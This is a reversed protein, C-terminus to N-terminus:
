HISQGPKGLYHNIIAVSDALDIDGDKNVDAAAVKYDTTILQGPKGLYHNITSVSDALDIEGDGNIDGRVVIRATDCLEGNVVLKILQGTAVIDSDSLQTTGDETWVSLKSYDNDIENNLLDGISTNVKVTLVLKNVNTNITHVSSTIVESEEKVLVDVYYTLITGDEATILFSVTVNNEGLGTLTHIYPSTRNVGGVNLSAKTDNLTATISETTVGEPVVVKYRLTNSSFAPNLTGQSVTLNRLTADSSAHKSYHIKYTKTDGNPAYVVVGILGSDRNEQPIAIYGDQDVTAATGNVLYSVTATGQTTTYNVKLRNTKYPIEGITYDETDKNFTSTYTGENKFPYDDVSLSSLTADSSSASQAKRIVVSYTLSSTGNEATVVITVARDEGAVLDSVTYTYPRIDTASVPTEGNISVNSTRKETYMTLNVSDVTNAVNILYERSTKIFGPSLAGASTELNLLYANSGYVKNYTITYTMKTLNDPATVTITITGRGTGNPLELTSERQNAGTNVRYEITSVPNEAAANIKLGTVDSEIDGIDYNTYAQSYQAHPEKFPYGDVSLSTLYANNSQSQIINFVYTKTASREEETGDVKYTEAYTVLTVRTTNAVLYEVNNDIVTTTDVEPTGKITFRDYGYPISVDYEYVDKYFTPSLTANLDDSVAVTVGSLYANDSRARTVNIKYINITNSESTVYIRFSKTEGTALEIDPDYTVTQTNDHKMVTIDDAGFTAKNYNITVAYEEPEEGPPAIYVYSPNLSYGKVSLISLRNDTSKNRTVHIRYEKEVGNQAKVAVRIINDGTVLNQTGTGSIVSADDDEAEANVVIQAISNDVADLYYDEVTKDFGTVPVNDVKLSKLYNNSKQERTITLTYTNSANSESTVKITFSKDGVPLAKNGLNTRDVQAREHTAFADIDVNDIDGPVVVKFHTASGYNGETVKTNTDYNYIDYSTEGNKVTILRLTNDSSKTRMITLVYHLNNSGDESRVHIDFSQESALLAYNGTGTVIKAKGETTTASIEISETSEPVTVTYILQNPDDPVFSPNFAGNSVTLTHLTAVNSKTRTVRLVTDTNTTGDEATITFQIDTTEDTSLETNSFVVSALIDNTTAGATPTVILNSQNAETINNPVTVEWMNTETNFTANNGALSIGAISTDSNKLREVTITYDEEHVGDQAIVHITITNIGTALSNIGTGRTIDANDDPDNVTAGINLSTTTYPFPTTIIYNKTDKDFELPSIYENINDGNITIGSLRADTRPLRKVQITVPRSTGDEAEVLVSIRTVNGFPIDIGGELTAKNTIKARGVDEVEADVYVLDTDGDIEVDYITGDPTFLNVSVGNVKLYALNTNSSKARRVTVTYDKYSQDEATVRIPIVKTSETTGMTDSTGNAPDVTATSDAVTSTITYATTSVPVDITCAVATTNDFNCYYDKGNYNADDSVIKLSVRTLDANNSKTRTINIPYITANGSESTVTLNVTNTGTTSLSLTSPSVTATAGAPLTYTIDASSITSVNNPLTVSYTGDGNDTVPINKVKIGTVSNDSNKTRVITITYVKNITTNHAYGVLTITNTGTTLPVTVEYKGTETTENALHTHQTVNKEDVVKTVEATGFEEDEPYAILKISTTDYSVTSLTHANANKNWDSVQTPTDTGAGVDLRKITATINQQRTISLNFNQKQGNEAEVTIVVTNSGYNLPATFTFEGNNIEGNVTVTTGNVKAEYVSAKGVDNVIAKIVVSETAGGETDSFSNGSTTFGSVTVNDIQLDQLSNDSSKAREVTINYVVTDSEDESTVTIPIIKSSETSPMQYETGNAPVVSANESVSSSITFSETSVPVSITCTNTSPDVDCYYSNTGVRATARNLQAANNKKKIIKVTYDTYTNDEATVRFTFNKYETTSLNTVTGGKTVTARTSDTPTVAVQAPTIAVTNFPVTVTYTKTTDDYAPNSIQNDVRLNSVSSDNNKSRTVSITYTKTTNDHATVLIGITSTGTPLNITGSFTDNEGPTITQSQVNSKEDTVSVQVSAYSNSKKGNLTITDQSFPVTGSYTYSTRDKNFATTFSGNGLSLEDLTAINYKSRVITLTYPNDVGAESYVVIQIPNNGFQLNTINASALDTGTTDGIKRITSYPSAKSPTVTVTDIDAPVTVTYSRTSAGFTPDITPTQTGDKEYIVVLNSLYNDNSQQRELTIPYVRIDGNESTVIVSVNTTAPVNVTLEQSNLSSTYTAPQGDTSDVVAVKAKGTDNVEARVKVQTVTPDYGYKYTGEFPKTFAPTLNGSPNSTVQLSNLTTDNSRRHVRLSYTQKTSGDEAKTKVEFTNDGVAINFTGTGSIITANPDDIAANITISNTNYSVEGLNYTYTTKSYGSVLEPTAGNYGYKLNDLNANNSPNARTVNITYRATACTNEPVSLYENKCNEASVTVNRTNITAGYSAFTWSGAGASAYANQHTPTVYITTDKDAYTTSGNYTKNDPQKELTIGDATISTVSTDDSLKYVNFIYTQTTGDKATITFRFTNMGPVINVNTATFKDDDTNEDTLGSYNVISRANSDNTILNITITETNNGVVTKYIGDDSIAGPTFPTTSDYTFVTSNYSFRAQKLTADNSLTAGAVTFTTPEQKLWVRDGSGSADVQSQQQGYKFALTPSSAADDKVKFFAMALRQYQKLSTVNDSAYVTQQVYDYDDEQNYGAAAIAFKYSKNGLFDTSYPYDDQYVFDYNGNYLVLELADRNFSYKYNLSNISVGDDMALKNVVMIYNGPNVQSSNDLKFSNIQGGLYAALAGNLEDIAGTSVYSSVNYIDFSLTAVGEHDDNLNIGSAAFVTNIPIFVSLVAILFLIKRGLYKM